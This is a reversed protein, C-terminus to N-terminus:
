SPSSNSMGRCATMMEEVFAVFDQQQYARVGFWVARPIPLTFFERIDRKLGEELLFMKRKRAEFSTALHLILFRVFLRESETVPFRTVDVRADLM